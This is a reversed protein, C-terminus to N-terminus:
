DSFVENFAKLLSGEKDKIAFVVKVPKSAYKNLATKFAEAVVVPDNKFVGCGFAGLFLVDPNQSILFKVVNDIRKRMAEDVDESAVGNRMAYGKNVAACTVFSCIQPYIFQHKEDRIVPVDPSYICADTYLPNSEARNKEYYAKEFKMVCPFLTSARMICEEQAMAGTLFGGGPWHASAFNLAIMNGKPNIKREHLIAEIVGIDAISVECNLKKAFPICISSYDEMLVSKDVANRMTKKIAMQVKGAVTYRGSQFIRLNEDAIKKLEKRSMYLAKRYQFINM